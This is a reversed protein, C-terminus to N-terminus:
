SLIATLSVSGLDTGIEARSGRVSRWEITVTSGEPASYSNTAVITTPFRGSNGHTVDPGGDPVKVSCTYSGYAIPEPTGNGVPSYMMRFEAGPYNNGSSWPASANFVIFYQENKSTSPPLNLSLGLDAWEDSKITPTPQGNAKIIRM